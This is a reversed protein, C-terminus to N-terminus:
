PAAAQAVPDAQSTGVCPARTEGHNDLQVIDASVANPHRHPARSRDLLGEPGSELYREVWKRGTKRSVGFRRCVESLSDEGRRYAVIFSMRQDLVQIDKWPM